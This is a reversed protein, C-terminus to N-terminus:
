YIYDERMRKQFVEGRQPDSQLGSNRLSKSLPPSVAFSGCTGNVLSRANRVRVIGRTEPYVRQGMFRQAAPGQSM